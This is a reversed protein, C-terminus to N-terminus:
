PAEPLFPGLVQDETYALDDLAIRSNEARLGLEHEVLRRARGTQRAIMGPLERRLSPSTELVEEIDDRARLITGEWGGRPDVAPSAQLKMLHEIVIKVRSALARREAAGLSEIEEALNEWDVPVNSRERAASRLAVAQQEAWLSLDTRYLEGM